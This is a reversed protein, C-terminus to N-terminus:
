CTKQQVKQRSLVLARTVDARALFAGGESFFVSKAGSRPAGGEM